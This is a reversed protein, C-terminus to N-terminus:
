ARLASRFRLRRRSGRARQNGVWPGSSFADARRPRTKEVSASTRPEYTTSTAVPTTATSISSAAGPVPMYYTVTNTPLPVPRIVPPEGGAVAGTASTYATSSLSGAAPGNGTSSLIGETSSAYGTASVSSKTAAGGTGGSLAAVGVNCRFTTFGVTGSPDWTGDWMLQNVRVYYTGGAAFGSWNAYARTDPSLPGASVVAAPRYGDGYSIVDLWLEKAAPNVGQWGFYLSATGDAACAEALTLGNRLPKRDRHAQEPGPM